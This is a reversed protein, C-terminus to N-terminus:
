SRYNQILKSLLKLQEQQIAILEQWQQEKLSDIKEHLLMIELEAKLNVEYDHEANLRDIEAQRNQSMLIIPAQVSALMSLFLNLLIYPYPDFAKNYNVLIYSNLIVWCVLILAFLVIFAWSGGFRAVVDAARQGASIDRDLEHATNKSIHAKNVIHRVVKQTHEDMSEYSKGM